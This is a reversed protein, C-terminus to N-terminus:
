MSVLEGACVKYMKDHVVAAYYHAVAKYHADKIKIIASWAPPIYDKFPPEEVLERLPRYCESIQLCYLLLFIMLLQKVTKTRQSYEVLTQINTENLGELVLVDWQLEVAQAKSPFPLLNM